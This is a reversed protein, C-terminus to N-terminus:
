CAALDVGGSDEFAYRLYISPICSRTNRSAM